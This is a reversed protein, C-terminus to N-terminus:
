GNFSGIAAAHQMIMEHEFMWGGHMETCTYYLHNHAHGTLQNCYIRQGWFNIFLSQMNAGHDFLELHEVVSQYRCHNVGSGHHGVNIWTMACPKYGDNSVVQEHHNVVQHGLENGLWDRERAESRGPFAHVWEQVQWMSRPLLSLRGSVLQFVGPAAASRATWHKTWCPSRRQIDAVQIHWPPSAM